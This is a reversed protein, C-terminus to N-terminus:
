APKQFERYSVSQDARVPKGELIVIGKQERAWQAHIEEDSQKM